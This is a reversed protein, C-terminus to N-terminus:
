QKEVCWVAKMGRIYIRDGEFVPCSRLEKLTNRSVEKPKGSNKDPGLLLNPESQVFLRDGVLIPSSEVPSKWRVNSQASWDVAPNAKPYSGTGDTRWGCPSGALATVSILAATSLM